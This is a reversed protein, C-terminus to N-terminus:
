KKWDFIEEENEKILTNLGICIKNDINCYINKQMQYFGMNPKQKSLEGQMIFLIERKIRNNKGGEHTEKIIFDWEKQNAIKM